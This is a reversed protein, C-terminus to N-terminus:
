FSRAGRGDKAALTATTGGLLAIGAAIALIWGGAGVQPPEPARPPALPAPLPMAQQVIEPAKRPAPKFIQPAEAVIQIDQQVNAERTWWAKGPGTTTSKYAFRAGPADAGQEITTPSTFQFRVWVVPKDKERAYAGAANRTTQRVVTPGFDIAAGRPARFDRGAVGPSGSPTANMFMGDTKIVGKPM